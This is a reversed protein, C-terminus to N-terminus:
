VRMQQIQEYADMLKNRIEMLLSFAVDAKNVASLVQAVDTTEGTILAEVGEGAQDQLTKVENLKEILLEKFDINGAAAATGPPKPQVAAPLPLGIRTLPDAM